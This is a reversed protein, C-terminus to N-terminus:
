YVRGISYGPLLPPRSLPTEPSYSTITRDYSLSVMAKLAKAKPRRSGDEGHQDIPVDVHTAMDHSMRDEDGRDVSSKKYVTLHEEKKAQIEAQIKQQLAQREM